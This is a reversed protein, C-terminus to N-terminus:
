RWYFLLMCGKSNSTLAYEATPESTTTSCGGGTRYALVRGADPQGDDTKSDINWAESPTLIDSTQGNTGSAIWLAHGESITGWNYNTYHTGNGIMWLTKWAANGLKSKPQNQGLMYTGSAGATGTYSGEIFGAAALHQWLRFEEHGTGGAPSDITNSGDGNCTDDPQAGTDTRPAACEGGAGATNAAGWFRTANTIDGPLAYYKDRFHNIATVYRQNEESVARLESARILSQGALIGGTLLGLIVLVISLEVLSFGSRAMQMRQGM